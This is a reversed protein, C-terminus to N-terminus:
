VLLSRYGCRNRGGCLNGTPTRGVPPQPYGAEAPPEDLLWCLDIFHEQAASRENLTVGQWKAVFQDPTM